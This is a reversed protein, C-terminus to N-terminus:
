GGAAAAMWAASGDPTLRYLRVPHPMRFRRTHPHPPHRTTCITAAASHLKAKDQDQM